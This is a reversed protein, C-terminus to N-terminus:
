LAGRCSLCACGTAPRPKRRPKRTLAEIRLGWALWETAKMCTPDLSKGQRDMPSVHAQRDRWTPAGIGSAARDAPTTERGQEALERRVAQRRAGDQLAASQRSVLDEHAGVRGSRRLLSRESSASFRGAADM